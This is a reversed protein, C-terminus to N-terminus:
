NGFGGSFGDDFGPDPVVTFVFDGPLPRQIENPDTDAFVHVEISTALVKDTYQRIRAMKALVTGVVRYERRHAQRIPEIRNVGTLVYTAKATFYLPVPLRLFGPHSDDSSFFGHLQAELDTTEDAESGWLHLQLTQEITGYKVRYDGEAVSTCIPQHKTLTAPAAPILAAAPYALTTGAPWSPMVDGPAEPNEWSQAALRFGSEPKEIEFALTSRLLRDFAHLQPAPM